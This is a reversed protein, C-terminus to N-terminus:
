RGWIIAAKNKRPGDLHRDICNYCANLKGGVFWKAHPENWELVKDWKKFWSLSRAQNNWFAEPNDHAEQWLKEYDALSKVHAQGAFEPTPPFSRTEKLVSTINNEQPSAM